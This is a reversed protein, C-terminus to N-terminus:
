AAVSGVGLGNATFAVDLQKGIKEVLFRYSDSDSHTADFHLDDDNLIYAQVSQVLESRANPAMGDMRGDLHYDPFVYANSVQLLDYIQATDVLSLAFRYKPKGNLPNGAELNWVPILTATVVNPVDSVAARNASDDAPSGLIVPSIVFRLM